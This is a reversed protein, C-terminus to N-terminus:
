MSGWETDPGPPDVRSAKAVLSAERHKNAAWLTLVRLVLTTRSLSRALSSADLVDVVPRPVMLRVEVEDDQKAM